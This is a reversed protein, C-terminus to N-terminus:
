QDLHQHAHPSKEGWMKELNYFERIDPKFLHVLIDGVDLLVWDCLPVGEVNARIGREKLEKEVYGALTHVHRNSTGSAVIMYDVIANKDTLDIITILDAKKDDLWIKIHEVLEKPNM